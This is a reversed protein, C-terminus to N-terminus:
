AVEKLERAVNDFGTQNERNPLGGVARITPHQAKRAGKQMSESSVSTM